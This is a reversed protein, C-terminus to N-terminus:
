FIIRSLSARLTLTLVKECFKTNRMKMDTNSNMPPLVQFHSLLFTKYETSCIRLFVSECQIVQCQSLLFTEVMNAVMEV